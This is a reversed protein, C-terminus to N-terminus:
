ALLIQMIDFYSTVSLCLYFREALGAFAPSDGLDPVQDIVFENVVTLVWVPRSARCTKRRLM